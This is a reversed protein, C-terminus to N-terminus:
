IKLASSSDESERGKKWKGDQLSGRAFLSAAIGLQNRGLIFSSGFPFSLTQLLQRRQFLM